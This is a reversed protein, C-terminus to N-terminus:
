QLQELDLESSEGAIPLPLFYLVDTAVTLVFLCYFKIRVTGEAPMVESHLICCMNLFFAM